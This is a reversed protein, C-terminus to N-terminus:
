KGLKLAASKGTYAGENYMKRAEDDSIWEVANVFTGIVNMGSMSPVYLSMYQWIFTECSSYYSVYMTPQYLNIIGDEGYKTGFAEDTPGFEQEKFKILPNLIDNTTLKIKVDYGNYFYDKIIITNEEEPDIEAYTLRNSYNTYNQLFTSVVSCYGAFANIDLKCAKQLFVKTEIGYLNWQTDEKSILRLSFGLSDGVEINSHYGRVNVNGVLQGAPIVVNNTLLSYHRGERANSVSDVIEVALVRDYDCARTAVVPLQFYEEDNQVPLQYLTDSFMIYNPGEYTVYEADTDCSSFSVSIVLLLYTYKLINKM